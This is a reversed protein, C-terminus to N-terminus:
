TLFLIITHLAAASHNTAILVAVKNQVMLRLSGFATSISELCNTTHHLILCSHGTVVYLPRVM